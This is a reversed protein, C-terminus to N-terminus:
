RAEYGRVNAWTVRVWGKGQWCIVGWTDFKLGTCRISPQGHIRVVSDGKWSICGALAVVVLLALGLATLVDRLQTPGGAQPPTM